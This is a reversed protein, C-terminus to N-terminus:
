MRPPNTAPRIVTHRPVLRTAGRGVRDQRRGRRELGLPYRAPRRGAPGPRAVHPSLPQPEPTDTPAGDQVEVRVHDHIMSASLLLRDAGNETGYDIGNAILAYAVLVAADRANESLGWQELVADLAHRVQSAAQASAELQWHASRPHENGPEAGLEAPM